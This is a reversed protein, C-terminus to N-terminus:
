GIVAGAVVGAAFIICASLKNDLVVDILNRIYEMVIGKM